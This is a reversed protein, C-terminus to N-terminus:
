KSTRGGLGKSHVQIDHQSRCMGFIFNLFKRL